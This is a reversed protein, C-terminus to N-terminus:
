KLVLERLTQGGANTRIKGRGASAEAAKAISGWIRRDIPDTKDNLNSARV